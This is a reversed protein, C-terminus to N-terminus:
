QIGDIQIKDASLGLRSFLKVVLPDDGPMIETLLTFMRSMAHGLNRTNYIDWTPALILLLDLNTPGPAPFVPEKQLFDNALLALRGVYFKSWQSSPEQLGGFLMLQRVIQLCGIRSFVVPFAGFELKEDFIWPILQPVVFKAAIERHAKPDFTRAESLSANIFCLEGIGDILQAERLADWYAQELDIQEFGMESYKRYVMFRAGLHPGSDSPPELPLLISGPAIRRFIRDLEEATYAKMDVRALDTM